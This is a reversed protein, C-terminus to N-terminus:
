SREDREGGNLLEVVEAVTEEVTVWKPGVVLVVCGPPPGEWGSVSVVQEPNVWWPGVGGDLKTLKVLKM